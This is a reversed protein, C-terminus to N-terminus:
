ALLQGAAGVVKVSLIDGSVASPALLIAVVHKGSAATILKGNGDSALKTNANATTGGMVAKSIGDMDIECAEGSVPKNQLLGISLEGDGALVVEGASNLKVAYFQKASLDAGAVLCGPKFGPVQFANM